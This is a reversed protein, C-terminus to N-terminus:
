SEDASAVQRDSSGIKTVRSLVNNMEDRDFTLSEEFTKEMIRNVPDFKADFLVCKIYIDETPSMILNNGIVGVEIEEITRMLGGILQYPMVIFERGDFFKYDNPIRALIKMNTACLYEDSMYVGCRPPINDASVAWGVKDLRAGWGSMKFMGEPEYMFQDADPYSQDKILPTSARMKGSTIRLKGSGCKACAM